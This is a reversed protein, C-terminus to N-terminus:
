QTPPETAKCTTCIGEEYLHHGDACPEIFRREVSARTPTRSRVLAIVDEAINYLLISIGVGWALALITLAQRAEPDSLALPGM